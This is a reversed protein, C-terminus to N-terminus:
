NVIMKKNVSFGDAEIRCTYVGKPIETLAANIRQEGASQQGKYLTKVLKGDTSYLSVEINTQKPLKYALQFSGSNPNPFLKVDLGNLGKIVEGIGTVENYRFSVIDNINWQYNTGDNLDLNLVNNSFTMRRVDNLSYAGNTGNTYSFYVNQANVELSTLIVALLVITKIKSNSM